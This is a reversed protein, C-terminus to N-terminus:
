KKGGCFLYVIGLYLTVFLLITKRINGGTSFISKVPTRRIPHLSFLFM